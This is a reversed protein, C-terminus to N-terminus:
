VDLILPLHLARSQAIARSLVDVVDYAVEPIVFKQLEQELVLLSDFVTGAKQFPKKFPSKSLAKQFPKKFPSKSLAKQFPKKFPSKSLAKQFP